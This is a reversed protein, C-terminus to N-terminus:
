PPTHLVHWRAMLTVVGGADHPVAWREGCLRIAMDLQAQAVESGVFCPVDSM